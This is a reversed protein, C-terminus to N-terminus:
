SFPKLQVEDVVRETDEHCLKIRYYPVGREEPLLRVIEYPGRPASIGHVHKLEVLDGLKFKRRVM